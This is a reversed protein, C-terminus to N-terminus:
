RSVAILHWGGAKHKDCFCGTGWRLWYEETIAARVIWPNKGFASWLLFLAANCKFVTFLAASILESLYQASCFWGVPLEELQSSEPCNGFCVSFQEKWLYGVVARKNIPFAGHLQSWSATRDSPASWSPMDGKRSSDKVQKCNQAMSWHEMLEKREDPYFLSWKWGRCSATDHCSCFGHSVKTRSFSLCM